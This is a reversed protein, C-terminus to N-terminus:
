RIPHASARCSRFPKAWLAKRFCNTLTKRRSVRQNGTAPTYRCHNTKDPILHLAVAPYHERRGSHKCIPSDSRRPHGADQTTAKFFAPSAPILITNRLIIAPVTLANRITSIKHMNARAIVEHNGISSSLGTILNKYAIVSGTIYGIRTSSPRLSSTCDM